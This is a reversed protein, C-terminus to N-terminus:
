PWNTTYMSAGYLCISESGTGRMRGFTREGPRHVRCTCATGDHLTETTVAEVDAGPFDAALAATMWDATVEQMKAPILLEVTSM